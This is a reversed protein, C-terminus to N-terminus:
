RASPQRRVVVLGGLGACVALTCAYALTVEQFQLTSAAWAGLSVGLFLVFTYAAMATGRLAPETAQMICSVILPFSLALMLVFGFHLAAAAWSPLVPLALHAALLAAEILLVPGLSTMPPLRLRAGVVVSFLMAIIAVARLTEMAAGGVVARINLSTYLAVFVGLAAFTALFYPLARGALILRPMRRLNGALAALTRVGGGDGEPFTSVIGALVVYAAGLAWLAGEMGLAAGIWQGIVGSLLFSTTVAATAVFRREAPIMAGVWSLAAPAFSAAAFGQAVRAAAFGTFSDLVLPMALTVAATLGAGIVITRIKGLGDSLPGWFLFGIAYAFSFATNMVQVDAPPRGYLAGLAVSNPMVIYINSLVLVGFPVLTLLSRIFLSM